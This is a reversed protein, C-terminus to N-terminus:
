ATSFVGNISIDYNTAAWTPTFANANNSIGRGYDGFATVSFANLFGYGSTNYPMNNIYSPGLTSATTNAGGATIVVAWYVLRGIKVYSGAYAPSGVITLGTWAPTWTGTTYRLRDDSELRSLRAELETIKRLLDLESM